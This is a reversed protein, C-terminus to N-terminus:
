AHAHGELAAQTNSAAQITNFLGSGPAPNSPRRARVGGLAVSLECAWDGQHLRLHLVDVAVQLLHPHLVRRQASSQLRRQRTGVRQCSGCAAGCATQLRHGWGVSGGHRCCAGAVRTAHWNEQQAAVRIAAQTAKLRQQSGHLQWRKRHAHRLTVHSLRGSVHRLKCGKSELRGADHYGWATAQQQSTLRRSIDHSRGPDVSCPCSCACVDRSM